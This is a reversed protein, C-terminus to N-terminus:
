LALECRSFRVPMDRYQSLFGSYVPNLSVVKLSQPSITIGDGGMNVYKGM